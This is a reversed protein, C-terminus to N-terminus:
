KGLGLGTLIENHVQEISKGDVDIRVTNFGESMFDMNLSVQEIFDNGKSKSLM